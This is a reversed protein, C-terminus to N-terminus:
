GESPIQYCELTLTSFGSARIQLSYFGAPLDVRYIGEDNTVAGFKAGQDGALSVESGVIVAGNQDFVRGSVMSLGRTAPSGSQGNLRQTSGFLVFM